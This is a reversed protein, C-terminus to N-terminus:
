NLPNQLSFKNTDQLLKKMWYLSVQYSTLIIESVIKKVTGCLDNMPWGQGWRSEVLADVVVAKSAKPFINNEINKWETQAKTDVYGTERVEVIQKDFADFRNVFPNQTNYLDDTIEGNYSYGLISRVADDASIIVFGQNFSVAYWTVQGNYVKESVKQVTNGKASAPAYNKYYNEAVTQAKNKDVFAASLMASIVLIVVLFKKM